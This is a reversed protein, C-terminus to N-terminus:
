GEIIKKLRDELRKVKNTLQLNTTILDEKEVVLRNLAQGDRDQQAELESIQGRAYDLTEEVENIQEHLLSTLDDINPDNDHEQNFMALATTLTRMRSISM